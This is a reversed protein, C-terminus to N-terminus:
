PWGRAARPAIEGARLPAASFVGDPDFLRKVGRLGAIHRSYASAVEDCDDASLLCPYGGPLAMPALAQSLGHAWRRHKAGHREAAPWAAIIEVLFHERRQAFATAAPPVRAPAGHFHRVIVASHSSTRGDGAEVLAAIAGPTLDSLRRTELTYHRGQMLHANFFGLMARYTMAGIQASVPTGLHQLDDIIRAGDGADGTWAAALLLQPQGDPGSLIGAAVDLEDPADALAAAFGRLVTAAQRWPFLIFGALLTDIPHLRIRMSTVVGFHGGGGRLAWHLEPHELANVTLQRGDALVLDSILLNDLALGFRPTLPGYGGTLTLGVMGVSGIVGTAAVLGYPAAAAVVDSARAGGGLTATGTAPDIEVGRMRRLDIVMGDERLSRGTWDHGGGLVSLPLGHARAACVAASVDKATECVAFLAPHSDVAGNWLQRASAYADDGPLVVKGRITRRLEEAAALGSRAIVKM